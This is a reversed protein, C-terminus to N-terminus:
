EVKEMNITEDIKNSTLRVTTSVEQGGDPKVRQTNTVIVAPPELKLLALEIMRETEAPASLASLRHITKGDGEVLFMVFNNEICRGVIGREARSKLWQYLPHTYKGNVNVIEFVPFNLRMKDIYQEKVEANSKRERSCFQGCPFALVTFRRKGFKDQLDQLELLRRKNLGKSATNVILCVTGKLTSFQFPNGDIDIACFDYLTTYRDM